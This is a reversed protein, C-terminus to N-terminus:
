QTASVFTENVNRLEGNTRKSRCDIGSRAAFKQFGEKSHGSSHGLPTSFRSDRIACVDKSVKAKPGGRFFLVSGNRGANRKGDTPCSRIGRQIGRFAFRSGYIAFEPKEARDRRLFLFKWM